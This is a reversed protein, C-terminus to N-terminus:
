QKMYSYTEYIIKFIMFSFHLIQKFNFSFRRTKFSGCEVFVNIRLLSFIQTGSITVCVIEQYNLLLNNIVKTPNSYKM